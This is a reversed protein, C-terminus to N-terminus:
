QVNGDPDGNPSTNDGNPLTNHRDEFHKVEVVKDILVEALRDEDLESAHPIYLEGHAVNGAFLYRDGIPMWETAFVLGADTTLDAITQWLKETM